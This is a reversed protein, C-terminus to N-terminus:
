ATAKFFAANCQGPYGASSGPNEAVVGAGVSWTGQQFAGDACPQGLLIVLHSNVVEAPLEQGSERGWYSQAALVWALPAKYMPHDPDLVGACGQLLIPSSYRVANWGLVASLVQM